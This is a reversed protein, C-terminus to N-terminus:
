DTRERGLRVKIKVISGFDVEFRFEHEPELTWEKTPEEEQSPKSAKFAHMSSSFPHGNRRETRPQVTQTNWQAM